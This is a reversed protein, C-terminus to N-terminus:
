VQQQEQDYYFPGKVRGRNVWRSMQRRFRRVGLVPKHRSHARLLLRARFLKEGISRWADDFKSLSVVLFRSPPKAVM